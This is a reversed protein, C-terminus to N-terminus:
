SEERDAYSARRHAEWLDPNDRAVMEVADGLMIKDDSEMLKIVAKDFDSGGEDLQRGGGNGSERTRGREALEVVGGKIIEKLVDFLDNSAKESLKIALAKVKDKVVPTLTFDGNGLESLQRGVESLRNTAELAALRKADEERQDLLIKIAPNTESLKKLESLSAGVLQDQTQEEEEEQNDDESESEEEQTSAKEVLGYLDEDSTEDTFEVGLNKALKELQERNVQNGGESGTGSQGPSNPDGVLESLNIPTIGKLFPRNTLAGGFLVDQFMRGDPHKWKDVYEPSFYRYAKEKLKGFAEKTWEVFIYLGDSRAQADKVWGAADSRQVKHDYDIDLDQGRVNAKVNAAMREARAEDFKIKGHLPHDYEVYPFAQIWLGTGDESLEVTSLDIFRALIPGTEDESLRVVPFNDVTNM